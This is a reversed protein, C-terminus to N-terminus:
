AITHYLYYVNSVRAHRNEICHARIPSDLSFQMESIDSLPSLVTACETPCMAIYKKLSLGALKFTFQLIYSM